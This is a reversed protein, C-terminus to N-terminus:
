LQHKLCASAQLTNYRLAIEPRSELRELNTNLERLIDVRILNRAGSLRHATEDAANRYKSV